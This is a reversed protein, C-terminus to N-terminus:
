HKRAALIQKVAIIFAPIRGFWLSWLLIRFYVFTALRGNFSQGFNQLLERLAIYNKARLIRKAGKSANRALFSKLSQPLQNTHRTLEDIQHAPPSMGQRRFMAAVYAACTHQWAQPHKLLNGSDHMRYLYLPEPIKAVAHIEELRFTFELDEMVFFNEDYGQVSMFVDRRVMMPSGMIFDPLRTPASELPPNKKQTIPAPASKLIEIEVEESCRFPLVDCTVAAIDPRDRLVNVQRQVRLPHSIDDDDMFCLFEGQANRAGLNRASAPGGNEKKVYRVRSDQAVIDSAITETEPTKSGDDVIIIEMSEFTQKLMSNTAKRLFQPRNCTALIVSVVPPRM